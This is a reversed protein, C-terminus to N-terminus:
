KGPQCRTAAKAKLSEQFSRAAGIEMSEIGIEAVRARPQGGAKREGKEKKEIAM